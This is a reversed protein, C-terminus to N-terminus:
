RGMSIRGKILVELGSFIIESKYILLSPFIMLKMKKVNIDKNIENKMTVLYIYFANGEPFDFVDKKQAPM